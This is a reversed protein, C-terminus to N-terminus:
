PYEVREPVTWDFVKTGSPIEMITLPVYEKIIQLTKRVGDGTISRCIPYLQEMLRYMFDGTKEPNPNFIDTM